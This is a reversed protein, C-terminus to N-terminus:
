RYMAVVLYIAGGAGIGQLVAQIVSGFASEGQQWSTRGSPLTGEVGADAVGGYNKSGMLDILWRVPIFSVMLCICFTIVPHPSILMFMGLFLVAVVFFLAMSRYVNM